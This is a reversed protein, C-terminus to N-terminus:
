TLKCFLLIVDSINLYLFRPGPFSLEVLIVHRYRFFLCSKKASQIDLLSLNGCIPIYVYYFFISRHLSGCKICFWCLELVFPGLSKLPSEHPYIKVNGTKFM